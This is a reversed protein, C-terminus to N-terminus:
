LSMSDLGIIKKYGIFDEPDWPPHIYDECEVFALHEYFIRAYENKRRTVLALCITNPFLKLTSFVLKRGISSQWYNIDIALQRIYLEGLNTPNDFSIYGILNNEFFAGVAFFKKECFPLLEEQEFYLDLRQKITLPKVLKLEEDTMNEYAKLFAITFIPAAQAFLKDDVIHRLEITRNHHDQFIEIVQNAHIQVFSVM